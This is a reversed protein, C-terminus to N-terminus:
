KEDWNINTTNFKNTNKKVNIMVFWGISKKIMEFSSIRKKIMENWNIIISNKYKIM